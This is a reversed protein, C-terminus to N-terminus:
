EKRQEFPGDNAGPVMNRPFVQESIRIFETEPPVRTLITIALPRFPKCVPDLAFPSRIALDGFSQANALYLLGGHGTPLKRSM